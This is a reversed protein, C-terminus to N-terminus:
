HHNLKVIFFILVFLNILDLRTSSLNYCLQILEHACFPSITVISRLFYVNDNFCKWSFIAFISVEFKLCTKMSMQEIILWSGNICNCPRQSGVYLKGFTCLNNKFVHQFCFNYRTLYGHKSVHIVHSACCNYDEIDLNVKCSKTTENWYFWTKLLDKYFFITFNWVLFRLCSPVQFFVQLHLSLSSFLFFGHM